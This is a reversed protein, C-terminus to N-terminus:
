EEPPVAWNFEFLWDEGFCDVAETGPVFYRSNFRACHSNGNDAFRDVSFRGWREECMSFFHPLVGWNDPDEARSAEDAAANLERPVWIVKLDCRAESCKDALEIAMTNLAPRPSGKASIAVAGKNDCQVIASRGALYRKFSDFAFLIARLERATSSEAREEISLLRATMISGYPAHLVAGLGTASADSSMRWFPLAHDTLSRQALARLSRLWFVIERKEDEGIPFRHDWPVTGVQQSLARTRMQSLPGLVVGMSIIKGVARMRQRCSPSLSRGLAILSKHASDLRRVPIKLEYDKLNIEVGLWTLIQAPVWSCKESAEVVGAAKLDGRVVQLAADCEVESPAIVLGDDL